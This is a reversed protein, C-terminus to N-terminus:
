QPPRRRRAGLERNIERTTEHAKRAATKCKGACDRARSKETRLRKVIEDATEPPPEVIGGILNTFRKSRVLGRYVLIGVVLGFLAILAIVEYQM